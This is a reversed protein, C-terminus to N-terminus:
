KVHVTMLLLSLVRFQVGFIDCQSNAVVIDVTAIKQPRAVWEEMGVLTQVRVMKEYKTHETLILVLEM